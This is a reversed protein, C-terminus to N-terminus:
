KKLQTIVTKKGKKNIKVPYKQRLRILWEKELSDQYESIVKARGEEFTLNGPPVLRSVEVLYYTHNVEAEQLGPVWNIQDIVQSEKAEYKKLHTVSKFKKLDAENLTDGAAIKNKIEEKFTKDTTAFIRAEVRNGAKFKDPHEGYYKRQGTSDDSAKNWVEKEMIEFLLIGEKYESLLLRYDPNEELLKKEELENIKEEVFRDYLQKMYAPPSLSSNTENVSVWQFFDRAPTKETQRTFLTQDQIAGGATYHWKGKTLTSDALSIISTKVENEEAFGLEKKRKDLSSAKSVTLREDRAVRRKLSVETEKFSPVPIRKELRIIHWGIASQFPDSIEGPAKLSFSEQEFEPVSAMAGVGFPRLRGGSNKTSTDESFETCLEDWARGGKLQDYIEFITNKIKAENGKGTRLLIHSVEVEGRAPRRDLVKIIHYGFRTRVIPSIEGVKTKYAADEFPYVMQLATFYGLNGNNMKASPDESYDKALIEFNENALARQRLDGIKRYAALTDSPTADAKVVMLLHAAKIEQALRDYAEKTLRDLDDTGARYPKKLEEKYTNFEKIFARTTDLGRKKGETIKLKFNIFLILYENIKEETFDQPQLHNKKYLYIFEETYVPSGKITFLPVNALGPGEKKQGYVLSSILILVIIGFRM